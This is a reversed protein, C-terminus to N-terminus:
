DLKISKLTSTKPVRFAFFDRTDLTGDDGLDNFVRGKIVIKQTKENDKVKIVSPYFNNSSLDGQSFEDIIFMKKNIDKLVIAVSFAAM